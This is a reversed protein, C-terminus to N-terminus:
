DEDYVSDAASGWDESFANAERAVTGLRERERRLMLRTARDMAEAWSLVGNHTEGEQTTGSLQWM